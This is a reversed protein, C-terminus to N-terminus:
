EWERPTDSQNCPRYQCQVHKNSQLIVVINHFTTDLGVLTSDTGSRDLRVVSTTDEDTVYADSSNRLVYPFDTADSVGVAATQEYFLPRTGKVYKLLANDHGGGPSDDARFGFSDPLGSNNGFPVYEFASNDAGCSGPNNGTCLLRM